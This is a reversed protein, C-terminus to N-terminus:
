LKGDKIAQRVEKLNFRGIWKRREGPQGEWVDAEDQWWVDVAEPIYEPEPQVPKRISCHCYDLGYPALCDRCIHKLQKSYPCWMVCTIVGEREYNNCM